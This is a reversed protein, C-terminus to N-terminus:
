KKTIEHVLHVVKIEPIMEEITSKQIPDDEFHIGIRLGNDILGRLIKAKHEGSSQRTKDKYKLSNFFVQNNIGRDRLMRLTKPAEEYSRGTIIIDQPSPFVGLFGKGMYIVGDIDFSNVIEPMPLAWPPIYM